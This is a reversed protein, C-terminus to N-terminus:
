IGPDEGSCAVGTLRGHSWPSVAASPLASTLRSSPSLTEGSTPSAMIREMISKHETSKTTLLPDDDLWSVLQGQDWVGRRQIRCGSKFTTYCGDGHQLGMNWHGTYEKGESTRYTGFGHPVSGKLQGNYERNDPWTIRGDTFEEGNYHGCIRRGSPSRYEHLTYDFDIPTEGTDYTFDHTGGIFGVSSLTNGQRNGEVEDVLDGNTSVDFVDRADGRRVLKIGSLDKAPDLESTYEVVYKGFGPYLRKPSLTANKFEPKEDFFLYYEEQFRSPSVSQAQGM